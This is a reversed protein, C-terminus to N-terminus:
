DLLALHYDAKAANFTSPPTTAVATLDLILQGCIHLHAYPRKMACLLMPNLIFIIGTNSHVERQESICSLWKQASLSVAAISQM